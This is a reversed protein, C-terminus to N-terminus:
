QPVFLVTSKSITGINYEHIKNSLIQYMINNYYKNKSAFTIAFM